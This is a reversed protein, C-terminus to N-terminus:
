AIGVGKKWPALMPRVPTLPDLAPRFMAPASGPDDGLNARELDAARRRYLNGAVQKTAGAYVAAPLAEVHYSASILDVASFLCETLFDLDLTKAKVYTQLEGPTVPLDATLPGRQEPPTQKWLKYTDLDM